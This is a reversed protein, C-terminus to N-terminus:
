RTVGRAMGAAEVQSALRRLGSSGMRVMRARGWRYVLPRLYSLRSHGDSVTPFRGLGGRMARPHCAAPPGPRPRRAAIASRPHLTLGAWPAWRVRQCPGCARPLQRPSPNLGQGMSSRRRLNYRHVAQSRRDRRAPRSREHGGLVLPEQHRASGACVLAVLDGGAQSAGDPQKGFPALAAEHSRRGVV